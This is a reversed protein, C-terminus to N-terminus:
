PQRATLPNTEQTAVVFEERSRYAGVHRKCRGIRFGLVQARRRTEQERGTFLLNESALPIPTFERSLHKHTMDSTHVPSAQELPKPTKIGGVLDRAIIFQQEACASGQPTGEEGPFSDQNPGSPNTM